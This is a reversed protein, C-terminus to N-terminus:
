LINSLNLKQKEEIDKMKELCEEAKQTFLAPDNEESLKVLINLDKKLADSNESGIFLTLRNECEAYRESAERAKRIGQLTDASNYFSLSAEVSERIPAIKNQVTKVSFLACAICFLIAGLAFILRKM